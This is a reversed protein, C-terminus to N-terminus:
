PQYELMSWKLGPVEKVYDLLELNMDGPVGMISKTGQQHIRVSMTLAPRRMSQLDSLLTAIVEEM